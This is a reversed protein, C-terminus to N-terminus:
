EKGKQFAAEAKCGTGDLAKSKINVAEKRRMAKEWCVWRCIEGGKV